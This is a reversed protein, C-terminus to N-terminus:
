MFFRPMWSHGTGISWGRSLIVSQQIWGTMIFRLPVPNQVSNSLICGRVSGKVLSCPLYGGWAGSGQQSDDQGISKKAFPYCVAQYAWVAAGVAVNYEGGVHVGISSNTGFAYSKTTVVSGPSRLPSWILWVADRVRQTSGTNETRVAPCNGYYRELGERGPSEIGSEGVAM